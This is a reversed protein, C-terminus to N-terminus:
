PEDDILVDSIFYGPHNALDIEFPPYVKAGIPNKFIRVVPRTPYKKNARTVLATDGSSIRVVTGVPFFAISRIFVQLIDPDFWKGSQVTLQEMAQHPLVPRDNTGMSILRDYIATIAVIRAYECIENGALGRPYGLGDYKEHHQLAVHASLISVGAKKRLLDFGLEPHKMIQENEKATLTIKKNILESPLMIMGIDHFLAGCALQELKKTDYGMAIGTVVSLVATNLAHFFGTENVARMDVLTVLLDKTKLLESILGNVITNVKKLDFDSNLRISNMVESTMKLSAIRTQESIMEDYEVKGINDDRIYLAPIGIEKLRSIYREDIKVGRNLLIEGCSGYVQREIVMGPKVKEVPIVRM